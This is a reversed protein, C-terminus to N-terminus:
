VLIVTGTRSSTDFIKKGMRKYEKRVLWGRVLAQIKTVAQSPSVVIGFGKIKGRRRGISGGDVCSNSRLMRRTERSPPTPPSKGGDKDSNHNNIVADFEDM